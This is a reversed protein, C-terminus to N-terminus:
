RYLPAKALSLDTRNATARRHPAMFGGLRERVDFTGSARPVRVDYAVRTMAEDPPDEDHPVTNDTVTDVAVGQTKPAPTAAPTIQFAPSWRSTM